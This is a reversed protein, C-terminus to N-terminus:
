FEVMREVPIIRRQERIQEVPIEIVKKIPIEVERDVYFRNEIINEVPREVLVDYPVPVEREM